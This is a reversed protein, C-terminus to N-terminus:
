YINYCNGSKWKELIVQKWEQDAGLMKNLYILFDLCDKKDFSQEDRFISRELHRIMLELGHRAQTIRNQDAMIVGLRSFYIISENNIM